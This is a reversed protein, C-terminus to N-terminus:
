ANVACQEEADFFAAVSTVVADVDEDTLDPYLPLRLLRGHVSETV